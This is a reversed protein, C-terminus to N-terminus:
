CFNQAVTSQVCYFYVVSYHKIEINSPLSQLYLSSPPLPTPAWNGLVDKTCSQCTRSMQPNPLPWGNNPPLSSLSPPPPLLLSNDDMIGGATGCCLPLPWQQGQVALYSVGPVGGGSVLPVLSLSQDSLPHLLDPDGDSQWVMVSCVMLSECWWVACWWVACWWVKVGDGDYECWWVTVGDSKWVMLSECWGWWVWTASDCWWVIVGDCQWMMMSDCECDCVTMVEKYTLSWLQENCTPTM